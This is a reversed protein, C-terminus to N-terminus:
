SPFPTERALTLVVDKITQKPGKRGVPSLKSFMKNYCPEQEPHDTRTSTFRLVVVIKRQSSLHLYETQLFHILVTKDVKKAQVTDYIWQFHNFHPRWIITFYGLSQLSQYNNNLKLLSQPRAKALNTNCLFVKEFANYLLIHTFCIIPDFCITSHM